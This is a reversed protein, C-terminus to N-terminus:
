DKKINQKQFATGGLASGLLHDVADV